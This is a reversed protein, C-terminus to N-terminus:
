RHESNLTIWDLSNANFFCNCALDIVKLQETGTYLFAEIKIKGVDYDLPIVIFDNYKIIM